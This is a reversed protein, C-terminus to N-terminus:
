GSRSATLLLQEFALDPPVPRRKQAQECALCAALIRRCGDAGLRNALPIIKNKLMWSNLKSQESVTAPSEGEALCTAALATRRLHTLLLPTLQYVDRGWTTLRWWSRLLSAAEGPGFTDTLQFIELEAQDM